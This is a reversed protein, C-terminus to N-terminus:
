IQKIYDICEQNTAHALASEKNLPCKNKHLYKIVDLHGGHAAYNFTTVDLVCGFTHVYVLCDLHGHLAAPSCIDSHYKCGNRLLYKLIELHGHLAALSCAKMNFVNVCTRHFYKIIEFHGKVIAENFTFMRELSAGRTKLWKVLNLNGSAVAATLINSLFKDENNQEMDLINVNNYYYEIVNLHGNIAAHYTAFLPIHYGKENFFKVIDLRGFEFANRISHYNWPCKHKHAYRIIHLYGYKSAISFIYENWRCGNRYMYKLMDLRNCEVAASSTYESWPCGSEHIYKLLELNGSKVVTVSVSVKNHWSCGRDIVYELLKIDGYEAARVTLTSSPRCKNNLAWMILDKSVMDKIRLKHHEEKETIYRYFAIVAIRYHTHELFSCMHSIIDSTLKVASRSEASQLACDPIPNHEMFSCM